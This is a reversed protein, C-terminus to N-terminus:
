VSERSSARGIEVSDGAVTNIAPSASTVAENENQGNDTAGNNNSDGSYTATWLYTGTATPSIPLADHLSPTSNTASATVTMFDPYVAVNSPNYLTFTITCTPNHM